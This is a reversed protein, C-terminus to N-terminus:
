QFAYHLYGSYDLFGTAEKQCVCRKFHAELGFKFTMGNWEEEVNEGRVRVCMTMCHEFSPSVSEKTSTYNSAEGFGMYM